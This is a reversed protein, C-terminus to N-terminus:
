QDAEKQSSLENRIHQLKEVVLTRDIAKPSIKLYSIYHRGAQRYDERDFYINGLGRHARGMNKDMQLSLNYADIAIQMNLALQAPGEETAMYREFQEERTRIKTMGQVRYIWSEELVQGSRPGLLAHADGKASWLFADPQLDILADIVAIATAPRDLRIYDDITMEIIRRLLLPRPATTLVGVPVQDKLLAYRASLREPYDAGWQGVPDLHRTGDLQADNLALKSASLEPDAMLHEIVRVAAASPYGASKLLALTATDAIIETDQSFDTRLNNFLANREEPRINNDRVGVTAFEIVALAQGKARRSRTTTIHDHAAIHHAEHAIVAALQAENELRALLGTHIYIQGDALSFLLPSPDRILHVRFQIYKDQVTPVVEAVVRDVIAQLETDHFILRRRNFLEEKEGADDVVDMTGRPDMPAYTLQNDTSQAVAAQSLLLILLPLPVGTRFRTRM